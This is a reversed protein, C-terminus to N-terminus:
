RRHTTPPNRRGGRRGSLLEEQTEKDNEGKGQAAEKRRKETKTNKKKTSGGWRKAVKNKWKPGSGKDKVGTRMQEKKKKGLHNEKGKRWQDNRMRTTSGPVM